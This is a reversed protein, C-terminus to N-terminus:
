NREVIKTFSDYGMDVVITNQDGSSKGSYQHGGSRAVVKKNKSIAYLLASKVDEVNQPYCIMFPTM